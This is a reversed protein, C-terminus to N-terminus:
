VQEVKETKDTKFASGTLVPDSPNEPKLQNEKSKKNEIPKISDVVSTNKTGNQAPKLTAHDRSKAAGKEKSNSLTRYDTKNTKDAPM